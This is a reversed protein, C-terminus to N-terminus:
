SRCNRRRRARRARDCRRRASTSSRARCRACRTRAGLRPAGRRTARSGRRPGAACSTLERRVSFFIGLVEPAGRSRCRGAAVGIPRVSSLRTRRGSNRKSGTHLRAFSASRWRQAPRRDVCTDVTAFANKALAGCTAAIRAPGTARTSDASAMPFQMTIQTMTRARQSRSGSRRTSGLSAAFNPNRVGTPQCEASTSTSESVNQRAESDALVAGHDVARQEEAPIRGRKWRRAEVVCM